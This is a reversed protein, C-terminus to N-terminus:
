RGGAGPAAPNSSAGSRPLHPVCMLGRLSFTCRAEGQWTLFKGRPGELYARSAEFRSGFGCAALRVASLVPRSVPAVQFVVTARHVVGDRSRLCIPVRRVGLHEIQGGSVTQLRLKTAPAELPLHSAFWEPAVHIEAGSSSSRWGILVVALGPQINRNAILAAVEGATEENVQAAIAKGDIIKASM